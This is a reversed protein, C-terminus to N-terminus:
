PSITLNGPLTPHYGPLPLGHGPLPLGLRAAGMARLEAESYNTHSGSGGQLWIWYKMIKWTKYLKARYFSTPPPPEDFPSIRHRMDLYHNRLTMIVSWMCIGEGPADNMTQSWFILNKKLPTVIFLGTIFFNEM